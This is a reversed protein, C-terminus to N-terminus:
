DITGIRLLEEFALYKEPLQLMKIQQDLILSSFLQGLKLDDIDIELKLSLLSTPM